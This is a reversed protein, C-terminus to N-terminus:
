LSPFLVKARLPGCVPKTSRSDQFSRDALWTGFIANICNTETGESRRARGEIVFRGSHVKSSFFTSTMRLSGLRLYSTSSEPSRPTGQLHSSLNRETAHSCRSAISDLGPLSESSAPDM